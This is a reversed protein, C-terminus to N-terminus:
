KIFFEKGKMDVVVKILVLEGVLFYDSILMFGECFFM